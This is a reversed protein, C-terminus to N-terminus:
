TIARCSDLTPVGSDGSRALIGRSARWQVMKREAAELGCWRPDCATRVMEADLMTRERTWAAQERSLEYKHAAPTPNVSDVSADTRPQAGLLSYVYTLFAKLEETRGVVDFEAIGAQARRLDESTMPVTRNFRRLRMRNHLLFSIMGDTAHEGVWDAFRERPVRNYFAASVARASVNRLVTAQLLQCGKARLVCALPRLIDRKFGPDLMAVRSEVHHIVVMKPLAASQAARMQQLLHAWTRNATITAHSWGTSATLHRLEKEVTSGGTKPVHLFALVGCRMPTPPNTLGCSSCPSAAVSM